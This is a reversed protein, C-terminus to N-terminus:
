SRNFGDPQLFKNAIYLNASPGIAAHVSASFLPFIQLFSLFRMITRANISQWTYQIKYALRLWKPSPTRIGFIVIGGEQATRCNSIQAFSALCTFPKATDCVYCESSRVGEINVCRM